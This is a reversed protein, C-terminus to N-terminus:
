SSWLVGTVAGGLMGGFLGSPNQILVGDIADKTAADVASATTGGMIWVSAGVVAAILGAVVPASATSPCWGSSTSVIWRRFLQFLGGVSAVVCAPLGFMGIKADAVALGLALVGGTALGSILGALTQAL